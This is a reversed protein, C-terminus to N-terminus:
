AVRGAREPDFDAGAQVGALALEVAGVHAADGDVGTRADGTERLRALHEDRPRHLIEDRAGAEGELRAALLLQLADRACPRDISDGIPSASMTSATRLGIPRRCPASADM